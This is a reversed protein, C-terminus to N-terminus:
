RFGDFNDVESPKEVIDSGLNTSCLDGNDRANEMNQKIAKFMKEGWVNEGCKQCFDIVSDSGVECSCYICKRVM